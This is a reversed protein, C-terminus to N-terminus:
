KGSKVPYRALFDRAEALEPRGPDASRWSELFLRYTSAAAAPQDTAAEARARGLMALARNPHRTLARNFQVLAAGPQGAALLVEGHLEHPPKISSPPGPPRPFTEEIGTARRLHADATEFDGAHAHLMGSVALSRVAWFKVQRSGTAARRLAESHRAADPSGCAAAALARIFTPVDTGESVEDGTGPLGCIESRRAGRVGDPTTSRTVFGFLRDAREWQRTEVIYAAVADELFHRNEPGIEDQMRRFDELLEAAKEYRGQQLCAYIWWHLNHYDRQAPSLRERKVWKESAAWGAQNSDAAETWMGLQLFIHSPMHLAHPADPAIRSYQRAAELGRPALAPHDFSHIIYHAAGPHAPNREYVEFAVAAAREQRALGEDTSWAYGLLSLAFFAAAESDQPFERHIAQMAAAYAVTRDASPPANFYSRLADIYAAERRTLRSTDGIRDLARRGEADDSGSLYPRRYTMAIGWWAMAFAPDITVARQLAEHAEAYWFSHLAAIGRQFHPQAEAAGSAVFQVTGLRLNEAAM